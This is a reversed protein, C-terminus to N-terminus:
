SNGNKQEKNGLLGNCLDMIDQASKKIVKADTEAESLTKNAKNLAQVINM